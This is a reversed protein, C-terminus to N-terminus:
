HNKTKVFEGFKKLYLPSNRAGIEVECDRERRAENSTSPPMTFGYIYLSKLTGQLCTDILLTMCTHKRTCTTPCKDHNTMTNEVFRKRAEGESEKERTKREM